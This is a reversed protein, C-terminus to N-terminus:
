RLFKPAGCDVGSDVGSNGDSGFYFPGMDLWGEQIQTNKCLQLMTNEDTGYLLYGRFPPRSFRGPIM